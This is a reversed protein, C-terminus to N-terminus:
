AEVKLSEIGETPMDDDEDVKGVLGKEFLQKGTMKVPEKVKAKKLEALREDEQRVREEEMEKLFGERWKMFTEPNVPTGQFKKNEEREVALLREEDQKAIEDKRGQIIQEANEKLTTVLTFIMAM